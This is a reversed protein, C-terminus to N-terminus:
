PRARDQFAPAPHARQRKYVDLHTYSVPATGDAGKGARRAGTELSGILDGAFEPSFFIALWGDAIEGTSDRICM